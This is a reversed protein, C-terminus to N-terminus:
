AVLELALASLQDTVRTSACMVQKHQDVGLVNLPRGAHGSSSACCDPVGSQGLRHAALLVFRGAGCGVDVLLPFTPDQHVLAPLCPCACAQAKAQVTHGVSLAPWGAFRAAGVEFLSAVDPVEQQAPSLGAYSRGHIAGGWNALGREALRLVHFPSDPGDAGGNRLWTSHAPFPSGASRARVSGRGRRRSARCCPRWLGGGPYFDRVLLCAQAQQPQHQHQQM